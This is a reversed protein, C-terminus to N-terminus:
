DEDPLSEILDPTNNRTSNVERSVRYTDLQDAPFAGLLHELAASDTEEGDMWEAAAEADLMAPMRDHLPAVRENAATTIIAFSQIPEEAPGPAEDYLGALLLGPATRDHIFYPQKASGTRKWEYFGSIPVLCRRHRLLGRFMPKETLTEARANIPMAKPRTGPKTWRPILGWHMGRVTWGEDDSVVVPLTQSPAANYTPPPHFEYRLPVQILRESLEEFDELVYRGCM